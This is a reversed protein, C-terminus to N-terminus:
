SRTPDAAARAAHAGPMRVGLFHSTDIGLQTIRRRLHAHSGGNLRLGLHRLVSTMTTSAAVAETLMDRTYKAHAM